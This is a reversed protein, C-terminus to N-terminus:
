QSCDQSAERQKKLEALHGEMHFIDESMQRHVAQARTLQCHLRKVIAEYRKNQIEIDKKIQTHTEFEKRLSERREAILKRTGTINEKLTDIEKKAMQVTSGYPNELDQKLKEREQKLRSVLARKEELNKHVDSLHAARLVAARHGEMKNRYATFGALAVCAHEEEESIQSQLEMNEKITLACRDRLVERQKMLHEMDGELLLIEREKSRLEQEAAEGKREVDSLVAQLASLTKQREKLAETQAYSHHSVDEVAKSLPFGPNGETGGEQSRLNSM